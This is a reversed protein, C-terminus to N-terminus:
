KMMLLPVVHSAAKKGYKQGSSVTIIIIIIIIIITITITM